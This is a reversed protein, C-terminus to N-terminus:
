LALSRKVEPSVVSDDSGLTTPIRDLLEDLVDHVRSTVLIRSEGSHAQGFEDVAEVACLSGGNAKTTFREEIFQQHDQGHIRVRFLCRQEGAFEVSLLLALAHNNRKSVQEDVGRRQRKAVGHQGDIETVEATDRAKRDHLESRAAPPDGTVLKEGRSKSKKRWSALITVPTSQRTACHSGADRM